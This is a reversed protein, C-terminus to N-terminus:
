NWLYKKRLKDKHVEKMQDHQGMLRLAESVVESTSNYRVTRVKSQVMQELEPTLSGHCNFTTM